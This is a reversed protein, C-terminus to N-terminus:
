LQDRTEHLNLHNHQEGEDVCPKVIECDLAEDQSRDVLQHCGCDAVELFEPQMQSIQKVGTFFIIAQNNLIIKKFIL